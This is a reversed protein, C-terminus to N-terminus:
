ISSIGGVARHVPMTTKDLYGRQVIAIGM